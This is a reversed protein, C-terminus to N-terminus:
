KRSKKLYDQLPKLATQIAQALAKSNEVGKTNASHVYIARADQAALIRVTVSGSGSRPAFQRAYEQGKGTAGPINALHALVVAYGTTGTLVAQAGMRGALAAAQADSLAGSAGSRLRWLSPAMVVTLNPHRQIQLREAAMSSLIAGTSADPAARMPVAVLKQVRDIATRDFVAPEPGACGGLCAAWIVILAAFAKSRSSLVPAM